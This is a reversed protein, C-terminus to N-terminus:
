SLDLLRHANVLKIVADPTLQHLNQNSDSDAKRGINPTTQAQSLDAQQPMRAFTRSSCALSVIKSAITRRCTSM